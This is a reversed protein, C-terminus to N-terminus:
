KLKINLVNTTFSLSIHNSKQARIKLTLTVNHICVCIYARSNSICKRETSFSFTPFFFFSRALGNFLLKPTVCFNCFKSMTKDTAFALGFKQTLARVAFTCSFATVSCHLKCQRRRENTHASPLQFNFFQNLKVVFFVKALLFFFNRWVLFKEISFFFVIKTM